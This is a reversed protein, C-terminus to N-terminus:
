PHAAAAAPSATIRLQRRGRVALDGHAHVCYQGPIYSVRPRRNEAPGDVAADGSIPGRVPHRRDADDGESWGSAQIV